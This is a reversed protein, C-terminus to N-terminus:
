IPMAARVYAAYCWTRFMREVRIILCALLQASPFQIMRVCGFILPCRCRGVIIGYNDPFCGANSPRCCNSCMGETCYFAQTTQLGALQHLVLALGSLNAFQCCRM